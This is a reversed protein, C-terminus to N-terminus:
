QTQEGAQLQIGDGGNGSIINRAEASTGGITNGNGGDIRVGFTANGRNTTGTRDTGILDGAVVNDGSGVIIEIGGSSNGSVLNRDGPATSGIANGASTAIQVGLVNGSSNGNARVGLFSGFVQTQVGGRIRVGHTFGTISLGRIVTQWGDT